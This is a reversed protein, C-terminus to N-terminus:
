KQNTDIIKKLHEAWQLHGIELPHKEPGLPYNKCYEDMLTETYSLDDLMIKKCKSVNSIIIRNRPNKVWKLDKFMKHEDISNFFLHKINLSKLMLHTNLLMYFKNMYNITPNQKFTNLYEASINNYTNYKVKPIINDLLTKNKIIKTNEEDVIYMDRGLKIQAFANYEDIFIEWRIDSTWGLVIIIEDIKDLNNIVFETTTRLIYDNSGSCIGKNIVEDVELMNGLVYPWSDNKNNLEEGYTYSCGSTFLIM